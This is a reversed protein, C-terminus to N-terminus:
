KNPAGLAIAALSDCADRSTLWENVTELAAHFEAVTTVLTSWLIEGPQTYWNPREVQLGLYPDYLPPSKRRNGPQEIIHRIAVLNIVANHPEDLPSPQHVHVVYSNFRPDASQNDPSTRSFVFTEPRAWKTSLAQGTVSLTTPTPTRAQPHGIQKYGSTDLGWGSKLQYYIENRDSEKLVNVSRVAMVEAFRDQLLIWGLTTTTSTSM